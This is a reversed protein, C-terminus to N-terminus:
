MGSGGQGKAVVPAYPQEPQVAAQQLQEDAVCRAASGAIAAASGALWQAGAQRAQQRVPWAAAAHPLV